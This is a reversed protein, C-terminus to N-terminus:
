SKHSRMSSMLQKKQMCKLDYEPLRYAENHFIDNYDPPPYVLITMEKEDTIARRKIM